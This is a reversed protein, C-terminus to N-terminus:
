KELKKNKFKLKAWHSKRYFLYHAPHSVLQKLSMVAVGFFYKPKILLIKENWKMWIVYMIENWFFNSVFRVIRRWRTMRIQEPAFEERLFALFPAMKRKKSIDSLSIIHCFKMYISILSYSNQLFSDILHERVEWVNELILSPVKLALSKENTPFCFMKLNLHSSCLSYFLLILAWPEWSRKKFRLCFKSLKWVELLIMSNDNQLFTLFYLSVYNKVTLM